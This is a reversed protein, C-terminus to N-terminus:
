PRRRAYAAAVALGVGLIALAGVSPTEKPQVTDNTPTPTPSSEGGLDFGFTESRQDWADVQDNLGDGNVANGAYSFTFNAPNGTANAPISWRFTWARQDNGASTHTLMAGIVQTTGDLPELTGGSVELAFGGQNQRAPAPISDPGTLTFTVNFERVGVSGVIPPDFGLDIGLTSSPETGHCTCGSQATGPGAGSSRAAGLGSYITIGAVLVLVAFVSLRRDMFAGMCDPSFFAAVIRTASRGGEDRHLRLPRM